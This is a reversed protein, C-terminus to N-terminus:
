GHSCTLDAQDDIAGAEGGARADRQDFATIDHVCYADRCTVGVRQERVEVKGADRESGIRQFDCRPTICGGERVRDGDLGCGCVNDGNLETKICRGSDTKTM